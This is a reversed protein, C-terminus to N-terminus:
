FGIAECAYATKYNQKKDGLGHDKLLLAAEKKYEKGADIDHQYILSQTVQENDSLYRYVASGEHENVAGVWVQNTGEEGRIRNILDSEEQTRPEALRGQVNSGQPFESECLSKAEQFKKKSNVVKYCGTEPWKVYGTPCRAKGNRAECAVALKTNLKKDGLGHQKLLLAAESNYEKGYDIDRQYILSGPVQVNDSEYRYVSSKPKENREGTWVADVGSEEMLKKLHNSDEPNRPEALLGHVPSSESFQGACLHKAELFKKKEAFIKFCGTNASNTYGEPCTSESLDLGINIILLCLIVIKCM